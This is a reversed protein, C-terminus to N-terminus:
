GALRGRAEHWVEVRHERSDDVLLLDTAVQDVGDLRVRTGGGSPAQRVDIHYVTERFRYHVTFADWTAPMCPVIQLRHGEITVGLLSEVILRYM